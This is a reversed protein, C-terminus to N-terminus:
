VVHKWTRGRVVANIASLSVSYEHALATQNRGSLKKRIERVNQETLKASHCERGQIHPPPSYPGREMLDKTNQKPTITKGTGREQINLPVNKSKKM